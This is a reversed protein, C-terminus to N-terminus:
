GLDLTYLMDVGGGAFHAHADLLGPTVTAGRLDIRDTNPGALAEIEATSGVAVIRDGAIAVAEVITDDADVTIVNGNLLVLDVDAPPFCAIVPVLLSSLALEFKRM